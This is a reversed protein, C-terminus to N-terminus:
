AILHIWTFTEPRSSSGERTDVSIECIQLDRYVLRLARVRLDVLAMFNNGTSTSNLTTHEPVQSPVAFAKIHRLVSLAFLLNLLMELFYIRLCLRLSCAFTFYGRFLFNQLTKFACLSCM